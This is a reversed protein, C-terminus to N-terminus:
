KIKGWHNVAEILSEGWYLKATTQIGAKVETWNPKFHGMFYINGIFTHLFLGLYLVWSPCFFFICFNLKLLTFSFRFSCSAPSLLCLCFGLVLSYFLISTFHLFCLFYVSWVRVLLQFLFVCRTFVRPSIILRIVVTVTSQLIKQYILRSFSRETQINETKRGKFNWLLCVDPESRWRQDYVTRVINIRTNYKFFNM